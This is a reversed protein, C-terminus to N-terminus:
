VTKERDDKLLTATQSEESRELIVFYPVYKM